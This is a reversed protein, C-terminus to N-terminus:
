LFRKKCVSKALQSYSVGDRLVEWETPFAFLLLLFGPLNKQERKYDASTALPAGDREPRFVPLPNCAAAGDRDPLKLALKTKSRRLFVPYPASRSVSKKTRSLSFLVEAQLFFSSCLHVVHVRPKHQYGHTSSTHSPASTTLWSIAYNLFFNLFRLPPSFSTTFPHVCSTAFFLSGNSACQQGSGPPNILWDPIPVSYHDHPSARVPFSTGQRHRSALRTKNKYKSSSSSSPRSYKEFLVSGALPFISPGGQLPCM